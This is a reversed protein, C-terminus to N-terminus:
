LSSIHFSRTISTTILYLISTKSFTQNVYSNKSSIYFRLTSLWTSNLPLCLATRPDEYPGPDQARESDQTRIKQYATKLVAVKNNINSRSIDKFIMWLHLWSGSLCRSHLAKRRLLKM